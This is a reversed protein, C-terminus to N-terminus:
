SAETIANILSLVHLGLSPPVAPPAICDTFRDDRSYMNRLGNVFVLINNELAEPIQRSSANRKEAWKPRGTFEPSNGSSM